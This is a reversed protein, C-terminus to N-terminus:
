KKYSDLEQDPPGIRTWRSKKFMGAFFKELMNM